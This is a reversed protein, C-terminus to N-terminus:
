RKGKFNYSPTNSQIELLILDEFDIWEPPGMVFMVSLQPLEVIIASIHNLSKSSNFSNKLVSEELSGIEWCPLSKEYAEGGV